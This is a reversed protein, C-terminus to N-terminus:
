VRKGMGMGMGVVFLEVSSARTGKPKHRKVKSFVSRVQMEFAKLDSGEFAKVVFSGGEALTEQAVRLAAECLEMSAAHDAMRVGTTQPAMDSIVLEFPPCRGGTLQEVSSADQDFADGKILMMNSSSGVKCEQIDIGLVLGSPGVKRACFMSWSGPACGLDLVRMGRRLLHYKHNLEELKFVSRAPYGQQRAAKTRADGVYPNKRKM